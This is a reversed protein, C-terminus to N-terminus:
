GRNDILGIVTGEPDKLWAFRRGGPIPLPGVMKEGGMAEANSISSTIDDVEAYVLVYNHPDHGLSVIHGALGAGLIQDGYENQSDRLDWDFLKSYFAGSRKRDRCGIEFHVIRAPM